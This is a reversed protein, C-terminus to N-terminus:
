GGRAKDYVYKSLKNVDEKIRIIVFRVKRTASSEHELLDGVDDMHFLEADRLLFPVGVIILNDPELMFRAALDVYIEKVEEPAHEIYYALEENIEKKSSLLYPIKNELCGKDGAKHVVGPPNNTDKSVKVEGLVLIPDEDKMEVGLLDIGRTALLPKEKTSLRSLHIDTNFYKKMTLQAIVEGFESRVVQFGAKKREEWYPIRNNILEKIFNTKLPGNTPLHELLSDISTYCKKISNALEDIKDEDDLSINFDYDYYENHGIKKKQGVILEISM